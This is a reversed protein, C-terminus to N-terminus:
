NPVPFSQRSPLVSPPRAEFRETGRAARVAAVLRNFVNSGWIREHTKIVELRTRRYHSPNSAALDEFRAVLAALRRRNENTFGFQAVEGVLDDYQRDWTTVEGPDPPGYTDRTFTFTEDRDIVDVDARALMESAGLPLFFRVPVGQSEAIFRVDTAPTVGTGDQSGASLNFHANLKRFRDYSTMDATDPGWDLESEAQELTRLLESLYLQEGSRLQVREAEITETPDIPLSETARLAGYASAVYGRSYSKFSSNRSVTDYGTTVAWMYADMVTSEPTFHDTGATLFMRLVMYINGPGTHYASLGPIEHGVANSYGAATVFSPEMTLLPHWEEYVDVANGAAAAVQYHHVDNQRLIYPMMQYRSRAGVPSVLRDDNFTEVTGIETVLLSMGLFQALRVEYEIFGRERERAELVQNKRGWKVTVNDRPVGRAVYKDVLRRTLLRRERDTRDWDWGAAEPRGEYAEREADLEYVELVDGSRNDVVRITFNDDVGQREHYTDLLTRFEEILQGAGASVDTGILQGATYPRFAVDPHIDLDEFATLGREREAAAADALEAGAATDSPAEFYRLFDRGMTEIGRSFVLLVVIVLTSAISAWFINAARDGELVSQSSSETAADKDPSNEDSWEVKEPDNPNDARHTM